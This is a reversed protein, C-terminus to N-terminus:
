RSYRNEILLRYLDSREEQGLRGSSALLYLKRDLGHCYLEDREDQSLSAYDEIAHALVLEDLQRVEEILPEAWAPRPGAPRLEFPRFATHGLLELEAFEELGIRGSLALLALRRREYLPQWDQHGAARRPRLKPLDPPIEPPIPLPTWVPVIGATRREYSRIRRWAESHGELLEEDSTWLGRELESVRRWVGSHREWFQLVAVEEANTAAGCGGGPCANPPDGVGIERRTQLLTMFLSAGHEKPEHLGVHYDRACVQCRIHVLLAETAYVSVATPHFPEYRPVGDLWWLPPEAIRSLIDDYGIYM